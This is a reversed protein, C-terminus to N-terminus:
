SPWRCGTEVGDRLVSVDKAGLEMLARLAVGAPRKARQELWRGALLFTTVGAAAELYINDLGNTRELTFRFPHKMGIEDATGLFLAALSWGFASLVGLSVLTDMTTSGHRLNVLAARHFPWAGWGVVPTALALSLWQWGDFHLAPVMAMLSWPCASRPPCWCGSACRGDPDPDPRGGGARRGAPQRRLGRGRGHRAARRHLGRRPTVRARETAYNVSATVGDLGNLRREIRKACSACTMGTIDLEVDELAADTAM